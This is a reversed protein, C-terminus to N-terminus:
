HQVGPRFASGHPTSRRDPDGKLAATSTRRVRRGGRAIKSGFLRWSTEFVREEFFRAVDDRGDFWAPAPPMTFRARLILVARQNGRRWWGSSRRTPRRWTGIM